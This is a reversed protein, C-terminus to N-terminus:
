VSLGFDLAALPFSRREDHKNTSLQEGMYIQVLRVVVFFIVVRLGSRRACRSRWQIVNSLIIRCAIFDVEISLQVVFIPFTINRILSFTSVFRHSIIYIDLYM